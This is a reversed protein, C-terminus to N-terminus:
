KRTQSKLAEAEETTLLNLLDPLSKLEAVAATCRHCQTLHLEYEKQEPVNLAGLTYTAAWHGYQDSQGSNM